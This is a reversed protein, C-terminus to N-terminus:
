NEVIKQFKGTPKYIITRYKVAQDRLYKWTNGPLDPNSKKKLHISIHIGGKVPDSVGPFTTQKKSGLRRKSVILHSVEPPLITNLIM